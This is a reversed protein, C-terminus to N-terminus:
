LKEIVPAADEGLTMSWLHSKNNYGSVFPPSTPKADEIFADAVRRGDEDTAEVDLVVLPLKENECHERIKTVALSQLPTISDEVIVVAAADVTQPVIPLVGGGGRFLLWWLVIIIISKAFRDSPKM